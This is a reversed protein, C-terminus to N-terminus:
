RRHHSGKTPQFEHQITDILPLKLGIPLPLWPKSMVENVVKDIMEEGQPYSTPMVPYGWVDAHLQLM